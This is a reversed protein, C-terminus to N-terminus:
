DGRGNGVPVQLRGIQQHVALPPDLHIALAPLPRHPTGGTPNAAAAAAPMAAPSWSGNGAAVAQLIALDIETSASHPM